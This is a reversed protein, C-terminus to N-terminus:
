GGITATERGNDEHEQNRLSRFLALAARREAKFFEVGCKRSCFRHNDRGRYFRRNCWDCGRVSVNGEALINALLTM